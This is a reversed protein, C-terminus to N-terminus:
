AHFYSPGCLREDLRQADLSPHRVTVAGAAHRLLMEREPGELGFIDAVQEATFQRVAEPEPTPGKAADPGYDHGREYSM